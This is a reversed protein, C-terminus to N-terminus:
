ARPGFSGRNASGARTSGVRAAPAIPPELDSLGRGYFPRRQRVHLRRDDARGTWQPGPRGARPRHRHGITGGDRRLRRPEARAAAQQRARPGVCRATRVGTKTRIERDHGAPRRHPRPRRPVALLRLVAPGQARRHVQVAENAILDTTKPDSKPNPPPISSPPYYFQGSGRASARVLAKRMPSITARASIGNARSFTATARTACPRPSRSRKWRSIIRIPAPLLKGPRNGGIYDTIGTRPPYKGTMISRPHAFLRPCAAYGAHVADGSRSGTSTRRRTSRRRTTRASTWTASITPSSSSSTATTQPGHLKLRMCGRRAADVAPCCRRAPRIHQTEHAHNLNTSWDFVRSPEVTHRRRVLDASRLPLLSVYLGSQREHPPAVPLPGAAVCRPRHVTRRREVQRCVENVYVREAYVPRRLESSERWGEWVNRGQGARSIGALLLTLLVLASWAFAHVWIPLGLSPTQVSKGVTHPQAMPLSYTAFPIEPPCAGRQEHRAVTMRLAALIEEVQPCSGESREPHSFLLSRM